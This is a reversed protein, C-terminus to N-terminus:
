LYMYRFSIKYEAREVTSSMDFYLIVSSNPQYTVTINGFTAIGNKTEEITSGQLSSLSDATSSYVINDTSVTSSDAVVIQAYYDRMEVFIPNEIQSGIIINM